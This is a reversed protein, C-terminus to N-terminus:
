NEPTSIAKAMRGQMQEMMPTVQEAFAAMFALALKQRAFASLESIIKRPLDPLIMATARDLVENLQEQEERSLEAEGELLAAITQGRRFFWAQQHLSLDDPTAMEYLKGDPYARSRISVTEREPALADIELVPRSM